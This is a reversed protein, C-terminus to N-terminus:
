RVHHEEFPNQKAGSKADAIPGQVKRGESWGFPVRFTPDDLGWMHWQTSTDVERSRAPYIEIMEIEPDALQDKIAMFDRYREPGVPEKDRRKISLHILTPGPPETASPYRRVNVQYRSNLWIDDGQEIDDLVRRVDAVSSGFEAAVAEAKDLKDLLSLKPLM